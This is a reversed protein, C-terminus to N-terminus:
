NKNPCISENANRQPGFTQSQSSTLICDGKLQNEHAMLYYKLIEFFKEVSFRYMNALEVLDHDEILLQGNEFTLLKMMKVKEM